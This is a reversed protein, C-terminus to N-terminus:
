QLSELLVKAADEKLPKENLVKGNSDVINFFGDDRKSLSYVPTKVVKRKASVPTEDLLMINDMFAEPLDSKRALFIENPKIIRNPLRLSGNLKKWRLIPDPDVEEVVVEKVEGKVEEKTEEEDVGKFEDKLDPVIEAVQFEEVVEPEKEKKVRKTKTVTKTAKTDTKARKRTM